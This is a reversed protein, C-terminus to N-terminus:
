FFTPPSRPMLDGIIFIKKTVTNVLYSWVGRDQALNNLNAVEYGVERFDM